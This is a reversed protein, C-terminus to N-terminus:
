EIRPRNTTSPVYAYRLFPNEGNLLADKFEPSCPHYDVRGDSRTRHPLKKKMRRANANDFMERTLGSATRAREIAEEREIWLLAQREREELLTKNSHCTSCLAQANSLENTGDKWLPVRHDLQFSGPLMQECMACRWSQRAGVLRAEVSGWIRKAHAERLRQESSDASNASKM